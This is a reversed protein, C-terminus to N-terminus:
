RLEGMLLPELWDKRQEPTAFLHLVEMNGTDPASCNFVESCWPFRGMIEALPAYELNSLRTGSENENLGPLFLNWLGEEFAKAKLREIIETPYTGADALASWEQHRPAVERDVFSQLQQRLKEVKETYGFDM